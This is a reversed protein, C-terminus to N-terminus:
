SGESCLEWLAIARCHSGTAQLLGFRGSTASNSKLL